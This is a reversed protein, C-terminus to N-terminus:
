KKVIQDIRAPASIDCSLFIVPKGDKGGDVALATVYVPDLVGESVRVYMQGPIAVPKDTTIEKRSWGIKIREM